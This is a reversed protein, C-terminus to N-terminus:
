DPLHIGWTGPPCPTSADATVTVHPSLTLYSLLYRYFTQYYSSTHEQPLYLIYRGGGTIHQSAILQELELRLEMEECQYDDAITKIRNYSQNNFYWGTLLCAFVLGYAVAPAFRRSALAPSLHALAYLMAIYLMAYLWILMTRRYRAIGALVLAEQLPMSFLYLCILGVVYMLYVVVCAALLKGYLNVASTDAFLVVVFSLVLPVLLFLIDKGTFLARFTGAIIDAVQQGTKEQLTELAMAHRGDNSFVLSHRWNWWLLLLVSALAIAVAQVLARRSGSRWASSLMMGVPLVLFILGSVKIQVVMCLLPLLIWPRPRADRRLILRSDQVACYECGAMVTLAVGCLPLMADVLLNYITTNSCLAFNGLLVVLLSGLACLLVGKKQEVFVFLTQLCAIMYLGQAFLWMDESNLGTCTVFYYIWAASAIPYNTYTIISDQLTPLANRTLLLKEVLAWHTFNDFHGVVKGQLLVFLVLAGLLGFLSAANLWPTICRAKEQYLCFALMLVGAGLLGYAAPLMIGLLSCLVMVVTQTSAILVPLFCTRIHHRQRAFEMWGFFSAFFLVSMM